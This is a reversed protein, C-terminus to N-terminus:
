RLKSGPLTIEELLKRSGQTTHDRKPIIMEYHIPLRETKPVNQLKVRQSAHPKWSRTMKWPSNGTEPLENKSLSLQRYLIVVTGASMRVLLLWTQRCPVLVIAARAQKDRVNKQKLFLWTLCKLETQYMCFLISLWCAAM